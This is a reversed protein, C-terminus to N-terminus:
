GMFTAEGREVQQHRWLVVKLAHTAMVKKEGRHTSKGTGDRGKQQRIGVAPAVFRGKGCFDAFGLPRRVGKWLDTAKTHFNHKPCRSSRQFPTAQSGQRCLLFFHGEDESSLCFALSWFHFLLNTVKKTQERSM